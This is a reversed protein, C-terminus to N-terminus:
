KHATHAFLAFPVKAADPIEEVLSFVLIPNRRKHPDVAGVGAADDITCEAAFPIPDGELTRTPVAVVCETEHARGKRHGVRNVPETREFHRGFVVNLTPTTLPPVETLEM